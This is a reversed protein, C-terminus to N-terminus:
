NQFRMGVVQAVLMWTNLVHAALGIKLLMGVGWSALMWSNLVHAAVGINFLMGNVLGVFM